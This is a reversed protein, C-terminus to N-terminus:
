SCLAGAVSPYLQDLMTSNKYLDVAEVRRTKRQRADSLIKDIPGHIIDLWEM